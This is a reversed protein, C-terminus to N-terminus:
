KTKRPSFKTLLDLLRQAPPPIPAGSELIQRSSWRKGYLSTNEDLDNRM